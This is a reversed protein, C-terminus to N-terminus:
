FVSLDLNRPLKVNNPDFIYAYNSDFYGCRFEELPLNTRKSLMLAYFYVQTAAYKERQANPKYDWVWVKNNENDVRLVDIHGTLPIESKFMEKFNKMENPEIWTPVEVAVTNDDNELMFVQVQSHATKYREYNTELGARALSSVEHGKIEILNVPLKFKLASGRPGSLFYDHPCQVFVRDLYENLTSFGNNKCLNGLKLSHIRYRYYGGSHDLSVSRIM